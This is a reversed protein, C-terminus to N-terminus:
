PQPTKQPQHAGPCPTSAGLRGCAEVDKQPEHGGLLSTVPERDFGACKQGEVDVLPRRILIHDDLMLALAAAADIKEPDIEGSKLRPAARNFWSAVPTVGFFGRLSEATWAEALLDRAMVTHGAAELM